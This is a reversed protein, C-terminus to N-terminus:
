IPRTIKEAKGAPFIWYANGKIPSPIYVVPKELNRQKEASVMESNNRLTNEVECLM